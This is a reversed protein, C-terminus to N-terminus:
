EEWPNKGKEKKHPAGTTEKIDKVMQSGKLQSLSNLMKLELHLHKMEDQIGGISGRLDKLEANLKDSQPPVPKSTLTAGKKKTEELDKKLKDMEVQLKKSEKNKQKKGILDRLKGTEPMESLLLRVQDKTTELQEKWRRTAEDEAKELETMKVLTNEMSMLSEVLTNLERVIKDYEEVKMFLPLKAVQHTALVPEPASATMAAPPKPAARPKPPAPPKPAMAVPPKPAARPKPADLGATEKELEKLLDDEPLTDNKKKKFLAM